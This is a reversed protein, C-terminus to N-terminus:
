WVRARMISEYTHRDRETQATLEPSDVTYQSPHLHEVRCGPVFLTGGTVRADMDLLTDGYWWVLREDTELGREGPLLFCYGCLKNPDRYDTALHWVHSDQNPCVLAPSVGPYVYGGAHERTGRLASRLSTTLHGPAIVDDNVVLVDWEAHGALKATDRAAHLGRNWWRSINLPQELDEIVVVKPHDEAFVPASGTKVMFVLDVQPLLAELCPRLCDRGKTPLVAYIPAADTM